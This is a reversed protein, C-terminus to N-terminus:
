DLSYTLQIGVARPASLQGPRPMALRNAVNRCTLNLSFPTNEPQWTMRLDMFVDGQSFAYRADQIGPVFIAILPDVFIKDISNMVSNGRVSMGITWAQYTAQLDAKIVDRYRYKLWGAEPSLATSNFSLEAGSADTAYVYSPDKPTPWVHTWGGLGQLTWKGLNVEAAATIEMGPISTGGVNLSKFGYNGLLLTSDNDWKGFTFEMMDDFDTWFAAVDIYGKVKDNVLLQKFGIESTWGKESKLDLNPFAQLQGIASRTYLEAVSPMRFGQAWSARLHGGKNVGKHLGVKAVPQNASMDDVRAQEWRLGASLDWGQVSLEAQTFAALNSSQHDGQFLVSQMSAQSFYVGSLMDVAGVQYQMSYDLMHQLAATSYNNSDLGSQNDMGTSRWQLKHMRGNQLHKVHAGMYWTAGKTLTASSDLPTYGYRYDEWLLSTARDSHYTAAHVGVETRSSPKYRYKLHLRQSLERLGLQYGQDKFQQGHVVWGHNGHSDSMAWQLGGQGRPKDSWQMSTMKPQSYVSGFTAVRVRLDSSPEWSRMHIVGNLASSGYSSSAAGKIVEVQDIAEVPMFGWAANGADPTLLPLGDLLVLVRSGAGMSWGSGGRINAQGDQITVGSLQELASEIRPSPKDHIVALPMVEVSIPAEEIRQSHRGATVVTTHLTVTTTDAQSVSLLAVGILASIMAM